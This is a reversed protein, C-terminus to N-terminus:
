SLKRLVHKVYQKYIEIRETYDKTYSTHLYTNHNTLSFPCFQMGYLVVWVGKLRRLPHKLSTLQITNVVFICM